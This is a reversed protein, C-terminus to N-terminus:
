DGGTPNDVDDLRGRHMRLVPISQTVFERLDEDQCEREAQEFLQIAGDHAEIQIRVYTRDFDPGDVLELEAVQGDLEADTAAAAEIGKKRMLDELERNAEGHDAVMMTAFARIKASTSKELALRSTEVEFQGGRLAQRAFEADTSAIAPAAGQGDPRRAASTPGSASPSRAAPAEYSDPDDARCAAIALGLVTILLPRKM